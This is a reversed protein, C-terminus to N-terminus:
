VRFIYNKAKSQLLQRGILCSVKCKITLSLHYLDWRQLFHSSAEPLHETRANVYNHPNILITAAECEPDILYFIGPCQSHQGHLFAFVWGRNSSSTHLLGSWMSLEIWFSLLTMMGSGLCCQKPAHESYTWQSPILSILNSSFYIPDPKQSTSLILLHVEAPNLSGTQCM